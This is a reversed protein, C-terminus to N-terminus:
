ILPNLAIEQSLADQNAKLRKADEELKEVYEKAKIVIEERGKKNNDILKLIDERLDELDKPLFPRHCRQYALIGYVFAVAVVVSAVAGFAFSVIKATHNNVVHSGVGVGIAAALPLLALLLMVFVDTQSGNVAQQVRSCTAGATSADNLKKSVSGWTQDKATFSDFDKIIQDYNIPVAQYNPSPQYSSSYM